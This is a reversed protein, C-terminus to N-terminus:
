CWELWRRDKTHAGDPPPKLHPHLIFTNHPFSTLRFTSPKSAFQFSTHSSPPFSLSSLHVFYLNHLPTILNYPHLTTFCLSPSFTFNHPAQTLLRFAVWFQSGRGHSSVAVRCLHSSPSCPRPTLPGFLFRSLCSFFQQFIHNCWLISSVLHESRELQNHFTEHETALAAPLHPALSLPIFLLFNFWARGLSYGTESHISIYIYIYVCVYMCAYMHIGQTLLLQM